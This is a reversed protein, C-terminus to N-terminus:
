EDSKQKFDTRILNLTLPAGDPGSIETTSRHRWESPRRNNLWYMMAMTDAVYKETTEITVSHGDDKTKTEKVYEGIARRFLSKVVLDDADGKGSKISASFEEHRAIWEKITSTAVNLAAAIETNTLGKAALKEVEVPHYSPDYKTPRGANSEAM